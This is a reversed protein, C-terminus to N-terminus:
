APQLTAFQTKINLFNRWWGCGAHLMVWHLSYNMFICLSSLFIQLHLNSSPTNQHNQSLLCWILPLIPSKLLCWSLHGKDKQITCLPFLLWNIENCFRIAHLDSVFIATSAYMSTFILAIVAGNAYRGRKFYLRAGSVCM